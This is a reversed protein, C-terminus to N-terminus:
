RKRVPTIDPGAEDTQKEARAILRPLNLKLATAMNLLTYLTPYFKASEVHRVGTRSMNALRALTEQSLGQRQREERLLSIVRKVTQAHPDVCWFTLAQRWAAYPWIHGHNDEHNWGM